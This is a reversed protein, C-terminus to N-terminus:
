GPVARPASRRPRPRRQQQAFASAGLRQPRSGFNANLEPGADGRAAGAGRARRRRRRVAREIADDEAYLEGISTELEYSMHSGLYTAHLVKAPLTEAGPSASLQLSQPRIALLASGTGLGRRPLRAELGGLRVVAEHGYIEAVDCPLLNADGIFDAVFRSAPQEYLERPSGEQAIRGQSMVIVRDSVALAEEQDHTVYVATIGLKQQLERIEERVRRRLKADLNSLPEDFLLVKPELVVARAVAVRQQQGGSLESPLRQGMGALGVLELGAEARSAVERKPLGSATLGYGVNELVTMHPFLAYSQFVMAVDRATAPLATVDEEAIQINGKTALELGAIMRLTTTKGCGSPGLLTVLTGREVTFSIEDVAVVAGYAKTVKDFRM